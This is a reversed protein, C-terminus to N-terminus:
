GELVYDAIGVLEGSRNCPYNNEHIWEAKCSRCMGRESGFLPVGCPEIVWESRAETYIGRSNIAGHTVLKRRLVMCDNAM